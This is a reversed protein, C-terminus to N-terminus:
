LLRPPFKLSFLYSVALGVGGSIFFGSLIYGAPEKNSLYTSVLGSIGLSFCAALFLLTPKLGHIFAHAGSGEYKPKLHSGLFPMSEITQKRQVFPVIAFFMFPAVLIVPAAQVPFNNLVPSEPMGIGQIVSGVLMM